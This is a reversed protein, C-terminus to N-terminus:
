TKIYVPCDTCNGSSPVGNYLHCEYIEKGQIVCNDHVIEGGISKIAELLKNRHEKFIIVINDGQELLLNLDGNLIAICARLRASKANLQRLLMLSKFYEPSTNDQSAIISEGKAIRPVLVNYEAQLQNLVNDNMM